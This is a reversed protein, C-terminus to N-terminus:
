EGINYKRINSIDKRNMLTYLTTIHQSNFPFNLMEVMNVHEHKSHNPVAPNANRRQSKIRLGRGKRLGGTEFILFLRVCQAFTTQLTTISLILKFCNTIRNPNTPFSHNLFLCYFFFSSIFVIRVITVAVNAGADSPISVM